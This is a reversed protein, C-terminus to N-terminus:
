PASVILVKSDRSYADVLRSQDHLSYTVPTLWRLKPPSLTEHYATRYSIIPAIM